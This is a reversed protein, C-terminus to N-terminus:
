MDTLPAKYNVLERFECNFLHLLGVIIDLTIRAKGHELRSIDSQWCRVGLQQRLFKAVDEQSWEQRERLARLNCTYPKARGTADAQM